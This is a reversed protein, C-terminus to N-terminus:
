REAFQRNFELFIRLGARFEEIDQATYQEEYQLGSAMSVLKNRVSDHQIGLEDLMEVFTDMYSLKRANRMIRTRIKEKEEATPEEAVIIDYQRITEIGPCIKSM